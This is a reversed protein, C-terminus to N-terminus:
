KKLEERLFELAEKRMKYKRVDDIRNALWLAESTYGLSLGFYSASKRLTWKKYHSCKIQHYLNILTAREQWTKALKYKELFKM